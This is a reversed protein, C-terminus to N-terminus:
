TEKTLIETAITKNPSNKISSAKSFAKRAAIQAETPPKLTKKVKAGLSHLLEDALKVPVFLEAEGDLLNIKLGHKIALANAKKKQSTWIRFTSDDYLDIEAGSMVGDIVTAAKRTQLCIAKTETEQYPKYRKKLGIKTLKESLELHTM